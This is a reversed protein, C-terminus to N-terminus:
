NEVCPHVFLFGLTIKCCPHDPPIISHRSTCLFPANFKRSSSFVLVKLTRTNHLKLPHTPFFPLTSFLTPFYFEVNSNTNQKKRERTWVAAWQGSTAHVNEWMLSAPALYRNRRSLWLRKQSFLLCITFQNCPHFPFIRQKFLSLALWSEIKSVFRSTCIVSCLWCRVMIRVISLFRDLNLVIRSTIGQSSSTSNDVM